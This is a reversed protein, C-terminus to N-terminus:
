KNPVFEIEVVRVGLDTAYPKDILLYYNGSRDKLKTIASGNSLSGNPNLRKIYSRIPKIYWPINISDMNFKYSVNMSEYDKSDKKSLPMVYFDISPITYFDGEISSIRNEPRCFSGDLYLQEYAVRPLVILRDKRIYYPLYCNLYYYANHTFFYPHVFRNMAHTSFWTSNRKYDTPIVGDKSNRYEEFVSQYLEYNRMCANLSCIYNPIFLCLVALLFYM